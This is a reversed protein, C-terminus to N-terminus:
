RTPHISLIGHRESLLCALMAEWDALCTYVRPSDHGVSWVRVSYTGDSTATADGTPVIIAHRFGALWCVGRYITLAEAYTLRHAKKATKTPHTIPRVLHLRVERSEKM